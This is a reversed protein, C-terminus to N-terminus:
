RVLYMLFAYTYTTRLISSSAIREPKTQSSTTCGKLTPGQIGTAERSPLGQCRTAEKAPGAATAGRQPGRYQCIQAPRPDTITPKKWSDAECSRQRRTNRSFVHLQGLVTALQTWFGDVAIDCTTIFCSDRKEWRGGTSRTESCLTSTSGRPWTAVLHLSILYADDFPFNAHIRGLISFDCEM